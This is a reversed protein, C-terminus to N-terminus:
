TKIFVSATGYPQMSSTPNTTNPTTAGPATAGSALAGLAVGSLAPTADDTQGALEVSPAASGSDIETTVTVGNTKVDFWRDTWTGNTYGPGSAVPKAFEMINGPLSQFWILARGVASLTHHHTGVSGSLALNPVSVTAGTSPVTLAPVPHTHTEAGGVDGLSRATLGPGAGAGVVTRGRYDPLRFNGTGEGGTNYSSGIAGFLSAYTTQSVVSGDCLLWGAPAVTYAAAKLDGPEFLAQQLAVALHTLSIAGAAIQASGVAGPAINTVGDGRVAEWNIVAGTFAGQAAASIRYSGPDVWGPVNGGADTIISSYTSSGTEGQWLTAPLGTDRNTVSVATGVIPEIVNAATTVAGGSTAAVFVGNPFSFSFPIQVRSSM